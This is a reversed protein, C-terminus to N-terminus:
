KKIYLHKRFSLNYFLRVEQPSLKTFTTRTERSNQFYDTYHFRRCDCSFLLEPFIVNKLNVNSKYDPLYKSSFISYRVSTCFKKTCKLLQGTTGSIVM